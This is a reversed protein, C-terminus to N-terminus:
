MNAKTCPQTNQTKRKRERERGARGTERHKKNWKADAKTRVGPNHNNNKKNKRERERERESAGFRGNVVSKSTTLADIRMVGAWLGTNHRGEALVEADVAIRPAPPPPPSPLCTVARWALKADVRPSSPSAWCPKTCMEASSCACNSARTSASAFATPGGRTGMCRDTSVDVSGVAARTLSSARMVNGAWLVACCASGACEPGSGMGCRRRVRDRDLDGGGPDFRASGAEAEEEM